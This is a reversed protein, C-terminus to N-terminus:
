LLKKVCFMTDYQETEDEDYIFDHQLIQYTGNMADFTFSNNWKRFEKRVNAEVKKDKSKSTEGIYGSDKNETNGLAHFCIKGTDIKIEGTKGGMEDIENILDDLKTHELSNTTIYYFKTSKKKSNKDSYINCNVSGFEVERTSYIATLKTNEMDKIELIDKPYNRIKKQNDSKSIVKADGVVLTHNQHTTSKNLTLKTMLTGLKNREVELTTFFQKSKTSIGNKKEELNQKLGNVM